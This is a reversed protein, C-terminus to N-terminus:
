FGFRGASSKDSQVYQSSIEQTKTAINDLLQQIETLSKSWQLQAQHYAQQAAGDWQSILQKVQNDLQDLEGKIGTAGNRIEASLQNVQEPTVAFSEM